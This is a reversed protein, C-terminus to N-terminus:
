YPLLTEHTVDTSVLVPLLGCGTPALKTLIVAVALDVYTSSTVHDTSESISDISPSSGVCNTFHRLHLPRTGYASM